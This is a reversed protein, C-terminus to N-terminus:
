VFPAERILRPSPLGPRGGATQRFRVFADGVEPAPRLDALPTAEVYVVMGGLQVKSSSIWGRGTQGYDVIGGDEVDIWTRLENAFRAGDPGVVDDLDGLREPPPDDYHTVGLEFPTKTVGTIAASPIWSVSIVAAEYRM